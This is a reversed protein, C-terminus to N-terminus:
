VMWAKCINLEGRISYQEVWSFEPLFLRKQSSTMGWALRLQGGRPVGSHDLKHTTVSRAQTREENEELRKQAPLAQLRTMSLRDHAESRKQLQPFTSPTVRRGDKDENSRCM